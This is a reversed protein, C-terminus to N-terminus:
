VSLRRLAINTRQGGRVVFEARVPTGPALVLSRVYDVSEAFVEYTEYTKPDALKIVGFDKGSKASTIIRAQVFVLDHEFTM